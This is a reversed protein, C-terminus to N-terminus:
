DDAYEGKHIREIDDRILQVRSRKKKGSFKANGAYHIIYSDFRSPSGNWEESFMSMHNFRYDLEFIKLGLRHIQYSLHICDFGLRIWYGGNIKRFIDKHPKSVVFVGTNIYGERWNLDGWLQQAQRIRDRRVDQRSGKDELVTGIEDYPVIEFLNPCNKNIIIDSDLQIIRDYEDLLNYLEMIRYHIKGMPVDCDADQSLILFDAGWKKAFSKMVPHTLDTMERINKDATTSILFKM